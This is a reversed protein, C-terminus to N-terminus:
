LPWRESLLGLPGSQFTSPQKLAEKASHHAAAKVLVENAIVRSAM